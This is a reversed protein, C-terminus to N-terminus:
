KNKLYYDNISKGPNANLWESLQPQGLSINNSSLRPQVQIPQNKLYMEKLRFEKDNEQNRNEM